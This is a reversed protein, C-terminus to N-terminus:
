YGLFFLNRGVLSLKASKIFSAKSLLKDSFQYGLTFERLRTNTSSYNYFGASPYRGGILGFYKQSSVAQTNKQGDQRYGDLVIGNAWHKMVNYVSNTISEPKRSVGIM